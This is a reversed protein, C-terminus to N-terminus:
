ATIPEPSFFKLLRRPLHLEIGDEDEKNQEAEYAKIAQAIWRAAAPRFESPWYKEGKYRISYGNKLVHVEFEPPTYALLMADPVGLSEALDLVELAYKRQRGVTTQMINYEKLDDFDYVSVGAPQNIFERLAQKLTSM